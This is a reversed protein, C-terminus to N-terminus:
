VSAFYAVIVAILTSTITKVAWAIFIINFLLAAIGIILAAISIGKRKYQEPHRHIRHLSVASFIIGLITFPLGIVPVFGLISLILGALGLKETKRKKIVTEGTTRSKQVKKKITDPLFNGNNAGYQKKLSSVLINIANIHEEKVAIIAPEKSKSAILNEDQNVPVPKITIGPEQLNQVSITGPALSNNQAITEKLHSKSVRVKSSRIREAPYHNVYTVKGNRSHRTTTSFQSRQCAASIMFLAILFITFKKM